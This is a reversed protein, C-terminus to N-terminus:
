ALQQPRGLARLTRLGRPSRRPRPHAEEQPRHVLVVDVGFPKLEMHLADSLSEVAYKSANYVGMFPFTVRGGVSSVNIIRGSKRERIAPLFTRTVRMLGFVNTDFQEKLAEDSVLETPGMHGYRANNIIVDM